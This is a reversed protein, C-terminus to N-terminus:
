TFIWFCSIRPLYAAHRILLFFYFYPLSVGATTCLEMSSTGQSSPWSSTGKALHHTCMRQMGPTQPEFGVMAVTVQWLFVYLYSIKWLLMFLLVFSALGFPAPQTSSSRFNCNCRSTFHRSLCFFLSFFTILLREERERM